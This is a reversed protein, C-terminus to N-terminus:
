VGREKPLVDQRLQNGIYCVTRALLLFAHDHARSDEMVGAATSSCLDCLWLTRKNCKYERIGGVPKRFQCCDCTTKDSM